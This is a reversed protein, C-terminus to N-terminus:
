EQEGQSEKAFHRKQVRRFPSIPAPTADDARPPPTERPSPAGDGPVPPQNTAGPRIPVVVGRASRPPTGAVRAVDGARVDDRAERRHEVKGETRDKPGAGEVARKTEALANKVIAQSHAHLEALDQRGEDTAARVLTAQGGMTLLAEPWGIGAYADSKEMLTAPIFDDPGLMLYITGTDRDDIGITGDWYTPRKGEDFWGEAYARDCHYSLGECQIGENDVRAKGRPLLVRYVIRPDKTRLTGSGNKIGWRWIDLPIPRVGDAIMAPTLRYETLVHSRNYV